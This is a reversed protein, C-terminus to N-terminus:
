QKAAQGKAPTCPNPQNADTIVSHTTDQIDGDVNGKTAKAIQTDAKAAQKDFARKAHDKLKDLFSPKKPAVTCPSPTASKAPAANPPPANYEYILTPKELGKVHEATEKALQDIAAADKDAMAKDLRQAMQRVWAQQDPPLSKFDPNDELSRVNANGAGQSSSAPVQPASPQQSLTQARLAVSALLALPLFFTKHKM